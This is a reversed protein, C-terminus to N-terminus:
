IHRCAIVVPRMVFIMLPGRLQVIFSGVRM